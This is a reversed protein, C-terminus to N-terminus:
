KYYQAKQNEVAEVMWRLFEYEKAIEEFMIKPLRGNARDEAYMKIHLNISAKVNLLNFLLTPHRTPKVVGYSDIGIFADIANVGEPDYQVCDEADIELKWEILEGKSYKSYNKGFAAIFSPESISNEYSWTETGIVRKYVLVKKLIFDKSGSFNFTNRQKIFWRINEIINLAYKQQKAM